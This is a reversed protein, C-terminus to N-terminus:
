RSDREISDCLKRFVHRIRDLQMGRDMLIEILADFFASALEENTLLDEGRDAARMMGEWATTQVSFFCDFPDVAGRRAAEAILRKIHDDEM